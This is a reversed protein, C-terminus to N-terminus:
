GKVAGATLGEVIQRNFFIYMILPPITILLIDTFLLNWSTQYQSQFNFLTLQVTANEAGPLFYLPNAFVNFVTVAQVVIVTIIVSRLLPFGIQFFLRIPGAGDILAAEDLERPINSVFARFLLICFSMGFAVEILTLGPLTKFLGLSQLVWITPVVAPPVILGALVLMSIVGNWRSARRAVVWGIMASLVVMIAVSAVTLIGSNLFATILMFDNTQFVQVVNEWFVFQQQPWTFDLFSAENATKFSTVLLFAFPVLFIVASAVVAIIGVVHRRVNRTKV